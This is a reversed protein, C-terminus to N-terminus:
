HLNEERLKINDKWEHMRIQIIRRTGNGIVRAKKKRVNVDLKNKLLVKKKKGFDRKEINTDVEKIIINKRRNKREEIEMKKEM